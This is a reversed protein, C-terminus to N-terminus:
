ASLVELAIKDAHDASVEPPGRDPLGEASQLEKQGKQSIGTLIAKLHHVTIAKGASESQRGYHPCKVEATLPSM